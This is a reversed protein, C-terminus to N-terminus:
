LLMLKYFYLKVRWLRQASDPWQDGSQEGNWSLQQGLKCVVEVVSVVLAHLVQHVVQGRLVPRFGFVDLVRPYEGEQLGFWAGDGLRHEARHAGQRLRAVVEALQVRGRLVLAVTGGLGHVLLTWRSVEGPVARCPAGADGVGRHRQGRVRLLVASVQRRHLSQIVVVEVEDSVRVSVREAQVARLM